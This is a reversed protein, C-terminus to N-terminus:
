TPRTAARLFLDARRANAASWWFRDEAGPLVAAMFRAGELECERWALVPAAKVRLVKRAWPGAVILARGDIDAPIELSEVRDPLDSRVPGEGSLAVYLPETRVGLACLAVACADALHEVRDSQREARYADFAVGAGAVRRRVAAEVVRKCAVDCGTVARKVARASLYDPVRGLTCVLAAHSAAYKAAASSQRVHEYREAAVPDLGRGVSGRLWVSLEVTRRANSAAVTEGPLEESTFVDHADLAFHPGIQRVLAYGCHALGLDFAHQLTSTM